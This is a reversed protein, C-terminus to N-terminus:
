ALVGSTEAFFKELLRGLMASRYAASGRHDDITKFESQAVEAALRITRSDWPKGVLAAETKYARVPTAAVGGLGIRVAKVANGELELAFGAAV